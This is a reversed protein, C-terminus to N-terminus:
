VGHKAYGRENSRTGNDWDFIGVNNDMGNKRRWVAISNSLCGIEEAIEKDLKGSEWLRTAKDNDIRM